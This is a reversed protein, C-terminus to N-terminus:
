KGKAGNAGTGARHATGPPPSGGGGGPALREMLREVIVGIPEPGARLEEAHGLMFGVMDEEAWDALYCAVRFFRAALAAHAFELAAVRAELADQM